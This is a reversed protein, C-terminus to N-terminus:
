IYASPCNIQPPMPLPIHNRNPQEQPGQGKSKRTSDKIHQHRQLTSTHREKQVTEQVKRRHKAHISSCHHHEKQQQSTSQQQQQHHHHHNAPFQCHELATRIHQLERDMKDETSSVIKARHALTNYVNQKASIHHNATGSYINTWTPPKRYVTTSFTNDPEITM